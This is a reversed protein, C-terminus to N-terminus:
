RRAARSLAQVSRHVERADHQRGEDHARAAKLVHELAALQRESLLYLREGESGRFGARVIELTTIADSLKM